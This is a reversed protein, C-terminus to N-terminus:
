LVQDSFGYFEGKREYPSRSFMVQESISEASSWNKGRTGKVRLNDMCVSIIAFAQSLKGRTLFDGKSTRVIISILCNDIVDATFSRWFGTSSVLGEPM